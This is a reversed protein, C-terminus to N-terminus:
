ISGHINIRTSFRIELVNGEINDRLPISEEPIISCPVWSSMGMSDNYLMWVSESELFDTLWWEMWERNLPGSSMELTHCTTKNRAIHRSFSLLTEPISMDYASSSVSATEVFRSRASISELLGRRNIFRFLNYENPNDTVYVQRNNITHWGTELRATNLIDTFPTDSTNSFVSIESAPNHPFLFISGKPVVEGFFPKASFDSILVLSEDFNMREYDTFRGNFALLDAKKGDNMLFAPETRVIEGDLMYEDHASVSYTTYAPYFTDVDYSMGDFSARLASSIDISVTEGNDVPTAFSYDKEKTANGFHLLTHINVIVKHFVPNGKSITEATISINVPSGALPSGSQIYIDKAM